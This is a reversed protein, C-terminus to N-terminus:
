VKHSTTSHSPSLFPARPLLLGRSAALGPQWRGRLGAAERCGAEKRKLAFVPVRSIHLTAKTQDLEPTPLM